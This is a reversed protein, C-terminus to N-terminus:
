GAGHLLRASERAIKRVGDSPVFDFTLRARGTVSGAHGAGGRAWDMAVGVRCLSRDANCRASFSGPIERYSRQPWRRIYARKDALIQARSFAHGYYVARPAYFREVSTPNIDADHAWLALYAQIAREADAKTGADAVQRAVQAHGIGPLCALMLALPVLLRAAAGSPSARRRTM